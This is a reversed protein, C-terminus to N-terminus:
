GEDEEESCEPCIQWYGDSRTWGGMGDCRKCTLGLKGFIVAVLFVVGGAIVVAVYQGQTM